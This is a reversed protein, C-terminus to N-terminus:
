KETRNIEVTPVSNTMPLIIATIALPMVISIITSYFMKKLSDANDSGRKLTNVDHDLNSIRETIKEVSAKLESTQAENHNVNENITNLSSDINSLRNLVSDKDAYIAKYLGNVSENMTNVKHSLTALDKRLEILLERSSSFM